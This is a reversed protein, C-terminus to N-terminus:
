AARTHVREPMQNHLSGHPRRNNYIWVAQDVARRAQRRTGFTGGLGYEQKLIGNLREAHANEYCHNEETMSVPLGRSQLVDVYEHCCYQCGRDSHHIPYRDTPLDDLARNLAILTAEASLDEGCQYGVIKRSYLDMILSLHEFGVETRIYTIDGVWIQNPGTPELDRILNGYLPLNHRSDTTRYTKRPLPKVLMDHGRMVKFLRDRGIEIGIRSLEEGLLDHLKRVGLRPQSRRERAVLAVVLEEDVQRRDRERRQKYYNQRTM